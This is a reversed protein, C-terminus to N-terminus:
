FNSVNTESSMCTKSFQEFKTEWGREYDPTIMDVRQSLYKSAEQAAKDNDKFKSYEILKQFTLAM